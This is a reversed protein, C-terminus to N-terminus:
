DENQRRKKFKFKKRKDSRYYMNVNEVILSKEAVVQSLIIFNNYFPTCLKITILQVTNCFVAM